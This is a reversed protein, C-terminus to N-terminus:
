RFAKQIHKTEPRGKPPLIITIIDFQFKRERLGNERLFAKAAQKLFKKKDKDVARETPKLGEKRRTKVETFVIRGEKDSSILDIEYRGKRYNSCILRHGKRKLIGAAFKEGWSGLASSNKLLKRRFFIHAFGQMFRFLLYFFPRM